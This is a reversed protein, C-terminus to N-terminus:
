WSPLAVVVLALLLVAALRTSLSEFSTSCVKSLAFSPPDRADYSRCLLNLMPLVTRLRFSWSLEDLELSLELSLESSLKASALIRPLRSPALETACYGFSPMPMRCPGWLTRQESTTTHMPFAHRFFPAPATSLARWFEGPDAAPVILQLVHLHRLCHLRPGANSTWRGVPSVLVYTPTLASVAGCM